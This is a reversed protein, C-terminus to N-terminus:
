EQWGAAAPPGMTNFRIKQDDTLADYFQGLAPGITQAAQLMAEIRSAIAELRAPPALATEEPCSTDLVKAARSAATMLDVLLQHQEDTPHVAEEIRKLPLDVPVASRRQSCILALDTPRDLGGDLLPRFGKLVAQQDETLSNYFSALAPRIAQSARQMADLRQGMASLREVAAAPMESPCDSNLIAAATTTASRLEGLLRYQADDAQLARAIPEIPWDTMAASHEEDCSQHPVPSAAGAGAIREQGADPGPAYPWFIADLLDISDYAWLIQDYSTNWYWFIGGDAPPWFPPGPWGASMASQSSAQLSTQGGLRSRWASQVPPHRVFTRHFGASPTVPGAHFPSPLSRETFIRKGGSPRRALNSHGTSDRGPHHLTIRNGGHSSSRSSSRSNAHAGRTGDGHHSSSKSTVLTVSSADLFLPESLHGRAASLTLMLASLFSAIRWMGGAIRRLRAFDGCKVAEVVGTPRGDRAPM